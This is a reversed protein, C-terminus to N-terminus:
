AAASAKAALEQTGKKIEKGAEKAGQKIKERDERTRVEAERAKEGLKRGNDEAEKNSGPNPAEQQHTSKNPQVDNDSARQTSCAGFTLILTAALAISLSRP